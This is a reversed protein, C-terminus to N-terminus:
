LSDDCMWVAREKKKKRKGKRLAHFLNEFVHSVCSYLQQLWIYIYSACICPMGFTKAAKNEANRRNKKEAEIKKVYENVSGLLSRERWLVSRSSVEATKERLSM